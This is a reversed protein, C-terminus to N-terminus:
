REEGKEEEEEDDGLLLELEEATLHVEGEGAGLSVGPEEAEEEGVEGVAGAEESVSDGGEVAADPRAEGGVREKNEVGAEGDMRASSAAPTHGGSGDEAVGVAAGAAEAAPGEGESMESASAPVAEGERKLRVEAGREYQWLDVGAHYRRVAGKLRGVQHIMAPEVLVVAEVPERALAVMAGPADGVERARVGHRRLGDLLEVPADCGRPVVLLCRGQGADEIGAEGGTM